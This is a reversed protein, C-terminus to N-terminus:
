PLRTLSLVETTAWLNYWRGAIHSVWTQDRPQSSRSSFSIVVWELVRAQFIGHVSSGPLSCDMPDCLTPCSQAVESESQSLLLQSCISAVDAFYRWILMQTTNLWIDPKVTNVCLVVLPPSWWEHKVHPFRLSLAVTKISSVWHTHSLWFIFGPHGIGWVEGFRHKKWLM